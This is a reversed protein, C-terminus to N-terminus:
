NSGSFDTSEADVDLSCSGISDVSRDMSNLNSFLTSNNNSVSKRSARRSDTAPSDISRLRNLNNKLKVQQRATTCCETVRFSSSLSDSADTKRACHPICSTFPDTKSKPRRRSLREDGLRNTADDQGPPEDAPQHHSREVLTRHFRGFFLSLNKKPKGALLSQRREEDDACHDRACDATSRSVRETPETKADAAGELCRDDASPYTHPRKSKRRPPTSKPPTDLRTIGLLLVQNNADSDPLDSFM